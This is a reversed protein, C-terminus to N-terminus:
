PASLRLRRRYHARRARWQHRRRWRSWQLAEEWLRRVPTFLVIFLRRVEQLSVRM